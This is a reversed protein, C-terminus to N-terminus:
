VEMRKLEVKGKARKSGRLIVGCCPCRNRGDRLFFTNCLNCRKCFEYTSKKWPISDRKCIGKCSNMDLINWELQLEQKQPREQRVVV